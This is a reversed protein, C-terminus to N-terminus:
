SKASHANRSYRLAREWAKFSRKFIYSHAFRHYPVHLVKGQDYFTVTTPKHFLKDKATKVGRLLVELQARLDENTPDFIPQVVFAREDKDFPTGRGLAKVEALFVSKKLKKQEETEEEIGKEKKLGAYFTKETAILGKTTEDFAIRLGIEAGMGLGMNLISAAQAPINRAQNGAPVHYLRQTINQLDPSLHKSTTSSTVTGKSGGQLIIRTNKREQPDISIRSEIYEAYLRGYADFGDKEVEKLWEKTVKADFSTTAGVLDIEINPPTEGHKMARAVKTLSRIFRDTGMDQGTYSSGLPPVVLAPQIFYKYNKVGTDLDQPDEAEEENEEVNVGQSTLKKILDPTVSLKIVSFEVGSFLKSKFIEYNDVAQRDIETFVTKLAQHERPDIKRKAEKIMTKAFPTRLETIQPQVEPNISRELEM